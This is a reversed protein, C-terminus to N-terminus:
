DTVPCEDGTPCPGQLFPINVASTLGQTSLTLDQADPLQYPVDGSLPSRRSMSFTRNQSPAKCGSRTVTFASADSFSLVGTTREAWSGNATTVDTCGDTTFPTPDAGYSRSERMAWTGSEDFTLSRQLTPDFQAGFLEYTTGGAGSLTLQHEEDCSGDFGDCISVWALAYTFTGSFDDSSPSTVNKTVDTCSQRTVTGSTQTFTRAPSSGSLDDVYTGDLQTTAVCNNAEDVTTFRRWVGYDMRMSTLTEINAWGGVTPDASLERDGDIWQGVVTPRGCAALSVVFLLAINKMLVGQAVTM